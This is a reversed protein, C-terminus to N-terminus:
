SQKNAADAAKSFEKLVFMANAAYYAQENPYADPINLQRCEICNENYLHTIFDSLKMM